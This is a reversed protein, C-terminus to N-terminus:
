ATPAQNVQAVHHHVAKLADYVPRYQETFAADYLAALSPDPPVVTAAFRVRALVDSADRFVGVGVGALAAAGWAVAEEVQLVHLTRQVIDAKVRLWLPNRAGGGIVTIDEVRLGTAAELSELALRWAFAMGEFVARAMEARGTQFSLGVFAGRSLPDYIPRSIGRLHPQFTASRCGPPASAALANLQAYGEALPLDPVLLGRAWDLTAGHAHLGVNAYYRDPATHAGINTRTQFTLDNLAPALLPMVLAEATGMSNLLAGPETVGVGFAGVLHDHGGTVVPTGEALGTQAAAQATVRGVTKGSPIVPPMLDSPIGAAALLDTSWARRRLDYAMTRAALSHPTAQVGTLRYVAWDAINLWVRARALSDPRHRRLWMLKCLSLIPQPTLGTVDFVRRGGYEELWWRQEALTRTDYWSIMPSCPEGDADLLVGAEAMSAVSLGAIPSQVGALAERVIGAIVAWLEDPRYEAWGPQPTHTPTPARAQAVTVGDPTYVVAKCNTTGIDLGLLLPQTM